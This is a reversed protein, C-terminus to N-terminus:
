GQRRRQVGLYGDRRVKAHVASVALEPGEIIAQPNTHQRTPHVIVPFALLLSFSTGSWAIGPNPVCRSTRSDGATSPWPRRNVAFVRGLKEAQARAAFLGGPRCSAALRCTRLDQRPGYLSNRRSHTDTAGPRCPARCTTAPQATGRDLTHSGLASRRPARAHIWAAPPPGPFTIM